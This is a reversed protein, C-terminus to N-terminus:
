FFLSYFDCILFSRWLLIVVCYPQAIIKVIDFITIDEECDHYQHQNTMIMIAIRTEFIQLLNCLSKVNKDIINGFHVSHDLISCM